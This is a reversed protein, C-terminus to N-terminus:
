KFKYPKMFENMLQKMNASMNQFDVILQQYWNHKEFLLYLTGIKMPKLNWFAAWMLSALAILAASGAVLSAASAKAAECTAKADADAEDACVKGAYKKCETIADASADALADCAKEDAAKTTAATATAAAATGGCRYTYVVSEITVTTADAALCAGRNEAAGAANEATWTEVFAAQAAADGAMGSADASVGTACCLTAACTDTAGAAWTCEAQAQLEAASVAGILALIALQM